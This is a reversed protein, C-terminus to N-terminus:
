MKCFSEIITPDPSYWTGTFVKSVGLPKNKSGLNRVQEISWLFKLERLQMWIGGSNFCYNICSSRKDANWLISLIWSANVIVFMWSMLSADKCVFCNKEYLNLTFHMILVRYMMKKEVWACTFSFSLVRCSFLLLWLKNPGKVVASTYGGRWIKM